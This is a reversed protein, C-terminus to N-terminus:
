NQTFTAGVALPPSTGTFHYHARTSPTQLRPKTKTDFSAAAPFRGPPPFPSTAEAISSHSSPSLNLKSSESLNSSSERHLQLESGSLTHLLQLPQFFGAAPAAPVKQPFPLFVASPSHKKEQPSKVPSKGCGRQEKDQVPFFSCYPLTSHHKRQKTIRSVQKRKPGRTKRYTNLKIEAGM